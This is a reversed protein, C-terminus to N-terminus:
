RHLARITKSRRRKWDRNYKRREDAEHDLRGQDPREVAPRLLVLEEHGEAQQERQQLALGRLDAAPVPSEHLHDAARVRAVVDARPVPARRRLAEAREPEADLAAAIQLRGDADVLEILCSQGLRSLLVTGLARVTEDVDLSSSLHRSAEAVFALRERAANAAHLLASERISADRRREHRPLTGHPAAIM